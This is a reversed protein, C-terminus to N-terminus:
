EIEEDISEVRQQSPFDKIRQQLIIATVLYLPNVRQLDADSMSAEKLAPEDGESCWDSILDSGESSSSTDGATRV